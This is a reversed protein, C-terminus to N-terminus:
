QKRPLIGHCLTKHLLSPNMFSARGLQAHDPVVNIDHLPLRPCSM